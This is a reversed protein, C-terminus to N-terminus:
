RFAQLKETEFVTPAKMLYEKYIYNIKEIDFPQLLNQQIVFIRLIAPSSLKQYSIINHLM